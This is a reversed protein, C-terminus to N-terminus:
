DVCDMFTSGFASRAYAGFYNFLGSTYGAHQVFNMESFNTVPAWVGPGSKSVSTVPAWCPLVCRQAVSSAETTM